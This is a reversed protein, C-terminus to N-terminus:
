EHRAGKTERENEVKLGRALVFVIIAAFVLSAFTQAARQRHAPGDQQLISEYALADPYGELLARIQGTQQYPRLVPGVAASAAVILPANQRASIQEVWQRTTATEASFEIILDFDLLTAGSGLGVTLARADAAQAAGVLSISLAQLAAADGPVFGLNLSPPAATAAPPFYPAAFRQAAAAMPPGIPRLSINVVRARKRRLHHLIPQALLQMEGQTSPDYDWVLLVRAGPRLIEIFTYATEVDPRIPASLRSDLPWWLGLLVAALLTIALVHMIRPAYPRSVEAAKWELPAEVAVEKEEPEEARESMAVAAAMAQRLPDDAKSFPPRHGTIVPEPPILGQIQALLRPRPLEEGPQLARGCHECVDADPPNSRGCDQCLTM